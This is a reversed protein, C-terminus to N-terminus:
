ENNYEIIDLMLKFIKKRETWSKNKDIYVLPPMSGFSFAPSNVSSVIEIFAHRSIYFCLRSKWKNGHPEIFIKELPYKKVFTASEIMVSDFQEPMETIHTSRIAISDNDSTFTVDFVMDSKAASDKAKSMRSPKVFILTENGNAKVILSSAPNKAYVGVSMISLLILCMFKVSTM